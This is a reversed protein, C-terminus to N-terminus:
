SRSLERLLWAKAFGWDRKVTIVSIDLVEAIEDSTLGGFFKMEVIRSKREDLEALKRLSDDLAVIEDSRDASVVASEDFTIMVAGSGSRKKSKKARAHDVLIHRMAQAAVGFFHSRNKWDKVEQGALKLYAEHILETTQFSHGQHQRNMYRKAMRHLEGYVIPMLEDLASQDGCGWEALLRTIQRPDHNVM